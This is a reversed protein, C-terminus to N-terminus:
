RPQATAEEDWRLEIGRASIERLLVLKSPLARVTANHMCRRHRLHVVSRPAVHAGLGGLLDALVEPHESAMGLGVSALPHDM